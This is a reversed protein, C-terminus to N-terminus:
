VYAYRAGPRRSVFSDQSSPTSRVRVNMPVAGRCRLFFIDRLIARTLIYLQVRTTSVKTRPKIDKFRRRGLAAEAARHKTKFKLKNGLHIYCPRLVTVVASTSTVDALVKKKSSTASSTSSSMALSTPSTTSPTVSKTTIRFCSLSSTWARTNATTRVRALRSPRCM